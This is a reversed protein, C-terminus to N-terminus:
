APQRLERMERLCISKILERFARLLPQNMIGIIHQAIYITQLIYINKYRCIKRKKYSKHYHNPEFYSGKSYKFFLTIVLQIVNRSTFIDFYPGKSHKSFLTILLQMVNRSTIKDFYPGKSYKAFLTFMLRM